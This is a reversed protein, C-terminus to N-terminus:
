KTLKHCCFFFTEENLVRSLSSSFPKNLNCSELLKGKFESLESGRVKGCVFDDNKTQQASAQLTGLISTVILLAALSFKIFM